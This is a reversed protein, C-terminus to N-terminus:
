FGMFCGSRRRRCLSCTWRPSATRMIAFFVEELGALSAGEEAGHIQGRQDARCRDRAQATRRPDAASGVVPNAISMERILQRIETSVAPRGPQSKSKWRWYSRFGARHWRLVTEPRVVALADRANPFLRCIWGLIWRDSASFPLRSPKGRRLVIIQQRLALIEAELAARSRFLDGLAGFILIALGLM